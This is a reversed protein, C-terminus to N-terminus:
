KCRVGSLYGRWYRVVWNKCALHGEQWGVLLMWASFVCQLLLQSHWYILLAIMSVLTQGVATESSDSQAYVRSSDGKGQWNHAFTVDDVFGLYMVYQMTMLPPGLWLCLGCTCFREKLSRVSLCKMWDLVFHIIILVLRDSLSVGAQGQLRLHILMVPIPKICPPVLCSGPCSGLHKRPLM